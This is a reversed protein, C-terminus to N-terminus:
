EISSIKSTVGLSFRNQFSLLNAFKPGFNASCFYKYVVKKRKAFEAEIEFRLCVYNCKVLSIAANTDHTIHNIKESCLKNVAFFSHRGSDVEYM